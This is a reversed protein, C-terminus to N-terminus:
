LANETVFYVCAQRAEEGAADWARRLRELQQTYESLQFANETTIRNNNNNNNINSRRQDTIAARHANNWFLRNLYIAEAETLDATLKEKLKAHGKMLLQATREGFGLLDANAELWVLWEGHALDTKKETLKQGIRDLSRVSEVFSVKAKTYLTGIEAAEKDALAARRLLRVLNNM